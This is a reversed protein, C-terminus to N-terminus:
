RSRFYFMGSILFLAFLMGSAPLIIRNLLFPKEVTFEKRFVVPKLKFYQSRSISDTFITFMIKSLNQSSDSYLWQASVIRIFSDASLRAYAIEANNLYLQFPVFVSDEKNWSFLRIPQPFTDLLNMGMRALILDSTQQARM